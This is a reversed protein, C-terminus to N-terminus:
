MGISCAPNSLRKVSRNPSAPGAVHAYTYRGLPMATRQVVYVGGADTPFTAEAASIKQVMESGAEKTVLIEQTGWPNVVTVPRGLTSRIGVYKIESGERESSVLFGGKAALTFRGM